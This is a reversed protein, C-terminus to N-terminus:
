ALLEAQIEAQRALARLRMSQQSSHSSSINSLRGQIQSASDCPQVSDEDDLRGKTPKVESGWVCVKLTAENLNFPISLTRRLGKGSSSSAM